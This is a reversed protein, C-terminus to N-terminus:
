LFTHLINWTLVKKTNRNVKFLYINAQAIIMIQKTCNKKINNTCGSNRKWVKGKM